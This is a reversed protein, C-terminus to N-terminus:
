QTAGVEASPSDAILSPNLGVTLIRQQSEAYADLDGFFLIPIAPSVRAELSAAAGFSRWAAAVAKRLENSERVSDMGRLNIRHPALRRGM